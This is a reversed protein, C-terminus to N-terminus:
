HDEGHHEQQTLLRHALASLDQRSEENRTQLLENAHNTQVDIRRLQRKHQFSVIMGVFSILATFLQIGAVILLLINNV